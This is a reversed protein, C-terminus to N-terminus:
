PRWKPTPPRPKHSTKNSTTLYFYVVGVGLRCEVESNHATETELGFNHAFNQHLDVTATKGALGVDTEFLM